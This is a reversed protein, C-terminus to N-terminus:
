NYEDIKLIISLPRDKTNEYIRWAYSGILGLSLINVAGIIGISLFLSAWGPVDILGMFKSIITITGAIGFFLVGFIGILTLIKIPLDSFSFVSDLMYNIKKRFTWQSFGFNRKLRKYLIEKRRFGIWFIQAILSSNSEKLKVLTDRFLKNCGFVDVGGKPLEKIVFKKYLYWFATAFIKTIIPDDRSERVGVVVDVPENKLTNFFNVALEIPEQLDASMSAFYDGKAVQLGTRIANLEGFNRSLLIIKSSYKQKPLSNRLIEYCNDPSGDVVFLVELDNNLKEYIENIKELLINISKENNYVPIILCNTNVSKKLKEM